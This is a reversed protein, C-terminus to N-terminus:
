GREAAGHKPPVALLRTRGLLYLKSLINALHARVRKQSIALSQAIELKGKSAAVLRLAEMEGPTLKM